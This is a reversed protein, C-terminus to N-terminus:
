LSPHVVHHLLVIAQFELDASLQLIAFFTNKCSHLPAGVLLLTM